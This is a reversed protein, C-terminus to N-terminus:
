GNVAFVVAFVSSVRAGPNSSATMPDLGIITM